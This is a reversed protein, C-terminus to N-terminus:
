NVEIYEAFVIKTHPNRSVIEQRIAKTGYKIFLFKKPVRHVVQTLTDTSALACWAKGNSLLGTISTWNDRWTFVQAWITDKPYVPSRTFPYVSLGSEREDTRGNEWIFVTDRVPVPPAAVRTETIQTGASQLRSLKLNLSKVTKALLENNQEIEQKSLQLRQVGAANLSDKTRYTTVKELLATRDQRYSESQKAERRWLKTMVGLAIGCIVLAIILYKTM